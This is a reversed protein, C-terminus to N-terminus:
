SNLSILNQSKNSNSNEFNGKNKLKQNKNSLLKNVVIVFVNAAHNM